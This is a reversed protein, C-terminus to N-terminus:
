HIKLPLTFCFSSGEGYVSEIWITGKHLAIIEKTMALGLGVGENKATLSVGPKQQYFKDFIYEKSDDSIGPGDDCVCIKLYKDTKESGITVSSGVPSYKIANGILNLIVRKIEPASINIQIIENIKSEISINKKIAEAEVEEISEDIIQTIDAVAFDLNYGGSELKAFDLLQIVLNKMRNANRILLSLMKSQGNKKIIIECANLMSQLPTKLEHSVNAMFENKLGDLEKLKEYDAANQVALAVQQAFITAIKVDYESFLGKEDTRSFNIIGVLNDQVIMPVSMGSEIDRYQEMDKFREDERLSGQVLVAEKKQAAYGCIREGLKITAGISDYQRDGETYKIVLLAKDNEYLAISGDDARVTKMSEQLVVRLIEDISMRNGIAKAVNSITIVHKLESVQRTLKKIELAKQVTRRVEYIEFPKTIFEYAGKKMADVADEISANGTIMIVETHPYKSKIRGLLEIGDIGPLMIDLLVVSYKQLELMKLAIEASEAEDVEIGVKVLARKCISRINDEDDVILVINKEVEQPVM